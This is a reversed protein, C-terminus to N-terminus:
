DGSRHSPERCQAGAKHRAINIPNRHEAGHRVLHLALATTCTHRIAIADALAIAAQALLAFLVTLDSHASHNVVLHWQPGATGIVVAILPQDAIRAVGDLRRRLRRLARSATLYPPAAFDPAKAAPCRM